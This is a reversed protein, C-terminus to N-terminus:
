FFTQDASQIDFCSLREEFLKFCFSKIEFLWLVLAMFSMIHFLGLHSLQRTSFRFIFFPDTSAINIHLAMYILLHKFIHTLKLIIGSNLIKFSFKRFVSDSLNFYSIRNSNLKSFCNM